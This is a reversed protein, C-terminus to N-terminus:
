KRVAGILIFSATLWALARVIWSADIFANCISQYSFSYSHNMIEVSRDAPCQPTWNFQNTDIDPLTTTGWPMAGAENQAMIEAASNGEGKGQMWNKYDEFSDTFDCIKSNATIEGGTRYTGNASIRCKQNEKAWDQFEKDQEIQKKTEDLQTKADTRADKAADKISKDVIGLKDLISDATNKVGDVASKIADSKSTITQVITASTSNIAAIIGSDDLQQTIETTNNNTTNTTNNVTSNNTTNNTTHNNTTTNNSNPSCNNTGNCSGDGQQNNPDPPPPNKSDKVCITQGNYTGTVYGAPCQGNQPTCYAGSTSYKCTPEPSPPPVDPPCIISGDAKRTCNDNPPQYCDGYPDTNDCQDDFLPQCTSVPTAESYGSGCLDGATGTYGCNLYMGLKVKCYKGDANVVCRQKELPQGASARNQYVITTDCQLPTERVSLMWQDNTGSPKRTKCMRTAADYSVFSQGFYAAVANCADTPSLYGVNGTGPDRYYEVAYVNTFFFLSFLLTLNLVLRQFFRRLFISLLHIFHVM